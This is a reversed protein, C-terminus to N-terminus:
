VNALTAQLLLVHQIADDSRRQVYLDCHALVRRLEDENVPSTASGLGLESVALATLALVVSGSQTSSLQTVTLHQKTPDDTRQTLYWDFAAGGDAALGNCSVTVPFAAIPKAIGTFGGTFGGSRLKAIPWEELGDAALTSATAFWHRFTTYSQLIM